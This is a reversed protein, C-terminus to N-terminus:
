DLLLWCLFFAQVTCYRLMCSPEGCKVACPWSCVCLLCWKAVFICYLWYPFPTFITRKREGCMCLLCSHLVAAFISDSLPIELLLFDKISEWFNSCTSHNLSLVAALQVTRTCHLLLIPWWGKQYSKNTITPYHPRGPFSPIKFLLGVKSMDCGAQLWSWRSCAVMFTCLLPTVCEQNSFLKNSDIWSKVDTICCELRDISNDNDSSYCSASLQTMLLHTTPFQM